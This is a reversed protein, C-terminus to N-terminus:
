KMKQDFTKLEQQIEKSHNGAWCASGQSLRESTNAPAYVFTNMMNSNAGDRHWTILVCSL